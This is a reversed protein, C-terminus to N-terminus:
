RSIVVDAAETNEVSSLSMCPCVRFMELSDGAASNTLAFHSTLSFSYLLKIPKISPYMIQLM